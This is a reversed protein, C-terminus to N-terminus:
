KILSLLEKYVYEICKNMLNDLEEKTFLLYDLEKEEEKVKVFNDIFDGHLYKIRKDVNEEKIFGDKLLKISEKIKSTDDPLVLEEKLFIRKGYLELDKHKYYGALRYNDSVNIIEGKITKIGVVVNNKQVWKNKYIYENYFNDILLHTYYGKIMDNNLVEEYDKKFAQLDIMNEYPCIPFKLKGYYHASFRKLKWDYDTDPILSGFLFLDKDMKIKKLIEKGIKMHITWSPMVIVM